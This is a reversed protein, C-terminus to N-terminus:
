TRIPDLLRHSFRRSLQGRLLRTLLRLVRLVKLIRSAELYTKARGAALVWFINSAVFSGKAM